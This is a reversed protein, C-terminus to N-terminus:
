RGSTREIAENFARVSAEPGDPHDWVASIVALFDAGAEVLAGCNEPTIGGIAVCPVVMLEGWWRLLDLTARSRPEKTATPFFAGFAVYDAGQEAAVIARHRSDYCSVGVIRDPGVLGRAEAYDGDEAGIHVGDADARKALDARDNVIFAVDREICPPLLAEAARLVEDDPVDKLRLQFSAVDGGDLARRLTDAFTAPELSPPSILYLRCPEAM